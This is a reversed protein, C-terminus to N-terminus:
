IITFNEAIRERNIKQNNVRAMHHQFVIKDDQVEQPNFVGVALLAPGLFKWRKVGLKKQVREQDESGDDEEEDEDEDGYRDYDDEDNYEDKDEKDKYEVQKEEDEEGEVQRLVCAVGTGGLHAILDGERALNSVFAHYHFAKNPWRFHEEEQGELPAMHKGIAKWSYGCDNELLELTRDLLVDSGSGCDSTDDDRQAFWQEESDNCGQLMPNLDQMASRPYGKAWPNPGVQEGIRAVRIGRVLLTGHQKLSQRPIEDEWEAGWYSFQQTNMYRPMDIRLDITWSPLDTGNKSLDQFISLCKLSQSVNIHHKVFDQYVLSVPKKYDPKPFDKTIDQEPEPESPNEATATQWSSIGLVAFVKDQPLASKYIASRMVNHFWVDHLNISTITYFKDHDMSFYTYCQLARSGPENGRVFRGGDTTYEPLLQGIIETFRKFEFLYKGCLLNLKRAAFIEQRIWTRQFFPRNSVFKQAANRGAELNPCTEGPELYAKTPMGLMSLGQDSSVYVQESQIDIIRCILEDDPLPTGVWAIVGAARQFIAFMMQVQRGKEELDAQHICCSDTWLLRPEDERRIYRMAELLTATVPLRIGNCLITETMDARGWCYSLAEYQVIPLEQYEEFPGPISEVTIDEVILDCVIAAEFDGSPHIKLLRIEQDKIPQYLQEREAASLQTGNKPESSATATAKSHIPLVVQQSLDSM